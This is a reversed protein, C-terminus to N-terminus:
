PHTLGVGQPQVMTVQPWDEVAIAELSSMAAQFQRYLTEDYIHAYIQTTNLNQHGLLKRLSALPMGQNILRTAFTHRLQHPTVALDIQQGYAALRDQITHSSPVRNHLLFVHDQRPLNPRVELYRELARRLAPTLYVVRDRDTKGGRVMATHNTLNLDDLRWDMLESLRLGTHAFTLFWARDFRADYTDETTANLITTELRRYVAEPLYRPLSPNTKKPAQVRFLGPDLPYGRTEAFKLMSRVNGLENQVSVASLGDQIRAQLWAELDARRFTAWGKVQRHSALWRALRQLVGLLNQGRVYATQVHWTPWRSSLYADLLDALWPPLSTFRKRLKRLQAIPAQRSPAPQNPQPPTPSWSPPPNVARELQEM